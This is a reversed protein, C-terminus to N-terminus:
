KTNGNTNIQFLLRVGFIIGKGQKGKQGIGGSTQSRKTEPFLTFSKGDNLSARLLTRQQHSPNDSVLQERGDKEGEEDSVQQVNNDLIRETWEPLLSRV